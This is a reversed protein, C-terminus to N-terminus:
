SSKFFSFMIFINRSTLLLREINDIDGRSLISDRYVFKIETGRILCFSLAEFYIDAFVIEGVPFSAVENPNCFVTEPGLRSIINVRTEQSLNREEIVVIM